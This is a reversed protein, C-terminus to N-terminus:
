RKTNMKPDRTLDNLWSVLVMMSLATKRTINKKIPLFHFVTLFQALPILSFSSIAKAISIVIKIKTLLNLVTLRLL